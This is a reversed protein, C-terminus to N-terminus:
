RFTVTPRLQSGTTARASRAIQVGGQHDRDRKLAFLADSLDVVSRALDRHCSARADVLDSPVTTAMAPECPENLNLIAAVVFPPKQPGDQHQQPELRGYNSPM